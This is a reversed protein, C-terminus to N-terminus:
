VPRTNVCVIVCLSERYYIRAKVSLEPALRDRKIGGQMLYKFVQILPQSMGEFLWLEPCWDERRERKKKNIKEIDKVEKKEGREMRGLITWLIKEGLGQLTIVQQSKRWRGMM